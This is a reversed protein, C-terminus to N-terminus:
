ATAPAPPAPVPTAAASLTVIANNLNRMGTLAANAHVFMESPLSQLSEELAKVINNVAAKGFGVDTLPKLTLLVEQRKATEAAAVRKQQEAMAAQLQEDTMKTVDTM